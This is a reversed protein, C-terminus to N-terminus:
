SRYNTWNNAFRCPIAGGDALVVGQSVQAQILDGPKAVQTAISTSLTIGFTLGAPAYVVRGQQYGAYQRQNNGYQTQNNGYQAQANGYQAQANGHQGHWPNYNENNAGNYTQHAPATTPAQSVAQLSSTDGTLQSVYSTVSANDTLAQRLSNAWRQALVAPTVGASKANASDVTVITYGGLTIVPLGKVYVIKVSSPSRNTAAVLANDLNNQITTTRADISTAGAAAKNAFIAQGALRVTGISADALVPYPTMSLTQALVVALTLVKVQFNQKSLLTM